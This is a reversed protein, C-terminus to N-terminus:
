NFFFTPTTIGYSINLSDLAQSIDWSQVPEPKQATVDDESSCASLTFAILLIALFNIQKFIMSKSLQKFEIVFKHLLIIVVM